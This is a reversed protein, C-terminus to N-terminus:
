KSANKKSSKPKSEVKIAAKAKTKVAKATPKSLKKIVLEAEELKRSKEEISQRLKTLEAENESIPVFKNLRLTFDSLVNM